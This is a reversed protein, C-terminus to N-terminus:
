PPTHASGFGTKMSCGDLCAIVVSNATHLRTPPMASHICWLPGTKPKPHPYPTSNHNPRDLQPTLTVVGYSRDTMSLSWLDCTTWSDAATINSGRDKWREMGWFRFRDMAGRSTSGVQNPNPNPNPNHGAHRQDLRCPRGDQAANLHLM